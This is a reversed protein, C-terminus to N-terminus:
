LTSEVWGSQSYAGVAIVLKDYRVTFPTGAEPFQTETASGEALQVSYKESELAPTAPM